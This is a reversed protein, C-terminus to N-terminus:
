ILFLVLQWCRLPEQHPFLGQGSGMPHERGGGARRGCCSPQCCVLFTIECRSKLWQDPCRGHPSGFPELEVGHCLLHPTPPFPNSAPVVFHFHHSACGSGRCSCQAPAQGLM